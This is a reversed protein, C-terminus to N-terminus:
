RCPFAEKMASIVIMVAPLNLEAPHDNGYKVVVKAAQTASVSDPVCFHAAPKGAAVNAAAFWIREFDLIGAVVGLCISVKNVDKAPATSTALDINEVAKCENVLNEATGSRSFISTSGDNPKEQFGVSNRPLCLVLTVVATMWKTAKM